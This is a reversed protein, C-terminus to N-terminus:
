LTKGAFPGAILQGLELIRLGALPGTNGSSTVDDSMGPINGAGGARGTVIGRICGGGRGTHSSRAVPVHRRKGALVGGRMGQPGARDVELRLGRLDGFPPPADAPLNRKGPRPHEVDAASVARETEVRD